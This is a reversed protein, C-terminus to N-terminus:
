QRGANGAGGSAGPRDKALPEDDVFLWAPGGTIKWRSSRVAMEIDERVLDLRDRVDVKWPTRKIGAQQSATLENSDM